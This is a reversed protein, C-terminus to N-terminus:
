NSTAKDFIPLPYTDFKMVFNLARFDVCFRFKPKGDTSRKPVLLAPASWLSNSERIVGKQLMNEVQTKMEERLSYPVRYQPKRIPRANDVLIQHEIVTTGKFDNTQEHFVHAYRLLVPELTRKEDESQHDLKGELLKKYLTKNKNEKERNGLSQPESKERVNIRFVIEVTVEESIGIVTAKPINLEENSFNAVMIFACNKQTRSVDRYERTPQKSCSNARIEHSDEPPFYAKM